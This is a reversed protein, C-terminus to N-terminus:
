FSIVSLHPVTSFHKDNSFLDAKSMTAAIIADPLKLKIRQRLKAIQELEATSNEVPLIHIRKM